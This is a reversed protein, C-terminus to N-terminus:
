PVDSALRAALARLAAESRASLVWPVLGGTVVPDDSRSPAPAAPAEEVIVHANTGSIGFSSVGARRPRGAPEWPRAETLLRVDGASWDVHPSPEDAHLTAPLTRHRLAEVMKIVGGVGAGAVTHGINSKLSGLWLPREEPRDQGYTALLAQAEIPDGLATGTGHAEVADVDGPTLRADALARRIVREQSPGNPATLGNSAGDQNVASGRLVALVPHGLRRAESLRELVLVGIGESMGMGDAAASFAKSRGDSALAGQQEFEAFAAQTALVTAGGALALSCEGNRLAQVALHTAVLSSSCATDVTVAPGELGFTYALRGSAVSSANGTMGFGAGGDSLRLSYDQMAMGAFVGTDTGKMGSPDLGARELAEWCVELLLRQQPDMALAERPSIGFFEADFDGAGSLFGGVQAYGASDTEWGRDAPFAGMADVGDAVVRWLDEPSAVGGPYRCAMGVIAVPEGASRTLVVETASEEAGSVRRMVYEALAQATPYDFVLTAPLTLGTATALRNRLEVATVSDFGIDRFARDARVDAAQDHGLVAAANERVLDLLVRAREVEGLAAMQRAFQSAGPGSAAARRPVRVLGGLVAPLPSGAAVATRVSSLDLGAALVPGDANLARDFLSLAHESPMPPGSAGTTDSQEEWRGWAISVAPLGEAMRHAALADLCANAAAYGGQGANGLLGSLSSFLVFTRLDRDRTAEHLYRAADAKAALVRGLSEEDLSTIPADELVGAAHVVGSLEPIDAVLADVAARDSVDAAVIRVRAGLTELATTLEAAGPAEQGSRSVLVLSRVGYRTALHRAVLGGVTSTGGTILVTGEPDLVPVADDGPDVRRLRPVLVVGDRLALEKEGTALAAVVFADSEPRGDDDLLVLGADPHEAMASRVLGWVGAQARGAVTDGPAAAVADRTRVALRSGVPYGAVLWARVLALAGAVHAPEAWAYVPEDGAEPLELEPGVLVWSEEPGPEPLSVPEWDLALLGEGAGPAALRGMDVPRSIMAGASVVPQGEGDAALLSFADPGAPSLRVRLASAGTAHLRVDRWAFPMRVAGDGNDGSDDAGAILVHLAADLLTPHIGFKEQSDGVPLEVEAYLDEGLRWAAQLGRFAPGYEYGGAAMVDYVDGVPLPQAGAPPWQGDLGTVTGAPDALAASAHRIWQEGARSYVGAQQGDVRVQVDVPRGGLVLPQEFTIEGIAPLGARDGAYLVLETLAAGPVLVTGSVAHDALWPSTATSVRGSLVWGADEALRVANDLLSHDANGRSTGGGSAWYRRHQFPYTPLTVRRGEPIMRTWDVHAGHIWADALSALLRRQGGDDRRLSGVAWRGEIGQMLVPHPSVEVFGAVPVAAVTQAFKVQERLNRWWYGADLTAGDVATGTVASYFPVRATRPTLEVALMAERIPEVVPHHSAYNTEVRRARIGAAECRATFAELPGPAGVVVVSSASNIAALELGDRLLPEVVDPGASVSVLGATGVLSQLATGRATVL